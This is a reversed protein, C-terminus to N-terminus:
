PNTGRLWGSWWSPAPATDQLGTLGTHGTYPPTVGHAEVGTHGQSAIHKYNPNRDAVRKVPGRIDGNVAQLPIVTDNVVGGADAKQSAIHAFCAKQFESNDPKIRGCHDQTWKVGSTKFAQLLTGEDHMMPTSKEEGPVGKSAFCAKQLEDDGLLSICPSFMMSRSLLATKISMPSEQLFCFFSSIAWLDSEFVEHSYYCYTYKIEMVFCFTVPGFDM